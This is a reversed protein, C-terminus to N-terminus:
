NKGTFSILGPIFRNSKLSFTILYLSHSTLSPYSVSCARPLLVDQFNLLSSFPRLVRAFGKNFLACYLFSESKLFSIVEQSEKEGGTEVRCVVWSISKRQRYNRDTTGHRSIQCSIRRSLAPFFLFITFYGSILKSSTRYLIKAHKTSAKVSILASKMSTESSTSTILLHNFLYVIRLNLFTNHM